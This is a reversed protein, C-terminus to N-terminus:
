VTNSIFVSSRGLSIEVTKGNEDTATIILTHVPPSCDPYFYEEIAEQPSASELIRVFGGNVTSVSVSITNKLEM